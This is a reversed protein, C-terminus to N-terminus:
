PTSTANGIYSEAMTLLRTNLLTPDYRLIDEFYRSAHDLEGKAVYVQGLLYSTHLNDPEQEHVYLLDELAAEFNKNKSHIEGRLNLLVLHKDFSTLAANVTQLADELQSSEILSWVRYVCFHPDKPFRAMAEQSAHAAKDYAHKALDKNISRKLREKQFLGWM